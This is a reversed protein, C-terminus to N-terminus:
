RSPRRREFLVAYANSTTVRRTQHHQRLYPSVGGLAGADRESLIVVWVRDPRLRPAQRLGALHDRFDGTRYRDAPFYYYMPQTRWDYNILIVDAPRLLPEMALALTREDAPAVGWRTYQSVSVVAAILLALLPLVRLGTRRVVAFLGRAVLVLAFPTLFLLSRAAVSPVWISALLLILLPVIAHMSAADETIRRRLFDGRFARIWLAWAPWVRRAAVGAALLLWPVAAAVAFAADGEGRQYLWLSCLSAALSAAMRLGLPLAPSNAAGEEPPQNAPSRLVGVALLAAGAVLLALVAWSATASLAAPPDPPLLLWQLLLFGGLHELAGTRALYETRGLGLHVVLFGLVPSSLVLALLQLAFTAPLVRADANRCLAWVVQAFFFPWFSYEFWLGACVVCVYAAATSSRPRAHFSRLLLVSLVGLFGLFVWMRAQQSWFVHHGHLALLSAATLAVGEGDRRRAMWYLLAITAGGALAAPLRIARLGTGALGTWAWMFTYYGPPHNDHYLTGLTTEELTRRPPPADVWEPMAIRPVYVEAHTIGNRELGHLRVAFGAVLTVLLAACALSPFGPRDLRAIKM